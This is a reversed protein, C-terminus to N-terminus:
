HTLAAILVIGGYFILAFVWPVFHHWWPQQPEPPAERKLREAEARAGFWDPYPFM